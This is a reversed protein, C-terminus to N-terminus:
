ETKTKRKKMNNNQPFIEIYLEMFIMKKIHMYTETM